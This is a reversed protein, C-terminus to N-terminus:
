RGRMAVGRICVPRPAGVGDDCQTGPPCEWDGICYETVGGFCAARSPDREDYASEVCPAGFSAIFPAPRPICLEEGCAIYQQEVTGNDITARTPLCFSTVGCPNGLFASPTEACLIAPDVSFMSRAGVNIRDLEIDCATSCAHERTMTPACGDFSEITVRVASGLCSVIEFTECTADVVRADVVPADIAADPTGRNDGCAFLTVALALRHV